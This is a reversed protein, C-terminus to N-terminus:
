EGPRSPQLSGSRPVPTEMMMDDSGPSPSPVEIHAVFPIKHPLPSMDMMDVCGPSSAPLPPTTVYGRGDLADMMAATTFLARRPTPFM